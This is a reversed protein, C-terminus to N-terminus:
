KILQGIRFATSRQSETRYQSPRLNRQNDPGWIDEGELPTINRQQLDSPECRAQSVSGLRNDLIEGGLVNNLAGELVAFLSVM